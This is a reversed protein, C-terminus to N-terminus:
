NTKIEEDMKAVSETLRRLLYKGEAAQEIAKATQKKSSRTRGLEVTFKITITM